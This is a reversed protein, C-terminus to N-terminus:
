LFVNVGGDSEVFDFHSGAAGEECIGPSCKSIKQTM